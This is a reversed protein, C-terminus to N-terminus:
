AVLIAYQSLRRLSGDVVEECYRRVDEDGGDPKPSLVGSRFAELLRQALAERDNTGDLATLLVSDAPELQALVHRRTTVIQSSKAQARVLPSARPCEGPSTVFAPPLTHLELGATAYGHLLMEGVTQAQVSINTQGKTLRSHSLGVLDEFLIPRPWSEALTLLVAKVHPQDSTAQHGNADVFTEPKDSEVDPQDSAPRLNAAVYLGRIRTWDLTRSVRVNDHCLLTQRFTRNRLFDMYQEMQVIDTALLNLTKQIHSPFQEAWMSGVRAEGLYQLGKKQFQEAFEYFYVPDNVDELHDHFLYSDSQRRLVDLEQKLLTGYPSEGHPISEALFDLLARAQAVRVPPQHFRRAHYSMIARCVGRLHWGPYTNYSVYAVGQPCLRDRCIELIKERLSPSVWSYVGHCIIYDFQGLEPGVDALDLHRLEINSLGADQILQQGDALQVRSLDIGLFQSDPLCDAMPILNGGAACGIEL